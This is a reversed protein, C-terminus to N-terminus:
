HRAETAMRIDQLTKFRPKDLYPEPRSSGDPYYFITESGKRKMKPQVSHTLFGPHFIPEFHIARANPARYKIYIDADTTLNITKQHGGIFWEMLWPYYNQKVSLVGEASVSPEANAGGHASDTEDFMVVVNGGMGFRVDDGFRSPDGYKVGFTVNSLKWRCAGDGNVAVTAEYVNTGPRRVPQLELGAYSDRTRKEWDLTSRYTTTCKTSRYIVQVNKAALEEPVKITVKVTGAEPEPSLAQNRTLHCGSLLLLALIAAPMPLSMQKLRPM